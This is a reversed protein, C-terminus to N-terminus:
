TSTPPLRYLRRANDRGVLRAVRDADAPDTLSPLVEGVAARFLLAGLYHLEALSFGDSSYLVKGFPALELLEALVTAARSAVHPIALGVDVHVHPWVRALYGAARQFPYTHLLVLPTGLDATARLLPSLLSPDSRALDLDTDGFGTHLQVPLGAELATWLLHRLVVPHELRSYRGRSFWDSTANRVSAPSPRRPDVDFGHRYALISKTAVATPLRDALADAFAAAFRDHTVTSRAVAEAVTELRIVRHVPADALASLAEVGVLTEPAHGTDVVLGDPRAGALFRANVEDVALEARRAVYDAGSCGADLELVPACWRLLAAGLATDFGSVGAPLPAASELM